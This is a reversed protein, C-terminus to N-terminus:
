QFQILLISSRTIWTEGSKNVAKIVVWDSDMSILAGAIEVESGNISDTTPPVPLAAASGLADGRRFQITCNKGIKESIGTDSSQGCGSLAVAIVCFSIFSKISMPPNYCQKGLLANTAPCNSLCEDSFKM